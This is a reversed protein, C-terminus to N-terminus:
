KIINLLRILLSSFVQPFPVYLYSAPNTGVIQTTFRNKSKNFKKEAYLSFLTIISNLINNDILYRLVTLCIKHCVYYTEQNMM